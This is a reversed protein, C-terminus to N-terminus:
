DVCAVGQEKIDALRKAAIGKIKTMNDVSSFPRLDIIQKARDSGIHKIKQLESESASNIDIQGPGCGGSSSAEEPPKERPTEVVTPVPSTASTTPSSIKTKVTKVQYTKGDTEVIINGHIDTGYLEIGMGRVREVVEKHPHGYTNDKGASYIAVEPKVAELFPKTSSTSSGHHGLKLIQAEVNHGRKLISKEGEQETDGTFLFVVDGYTVRMVISDDNLNGTLERPHIVEIYASGITFNEGARPEHYSVESNLITDIVREFTKSTHANGDLWVEKVPFEKIVKDLQGIHDAHPHTGVVLDIEKVGVSKLYPVVENSDHRGADILITFDPGSLLIADGQDVDIFHVTLKGNAPPPNPLEQTSLEKGSQISEDTPEINEDKEDFSRNANGENLAIAQTDNNEISDISNDQSPLAKSETNAGSCGAFM